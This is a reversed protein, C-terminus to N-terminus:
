IRPRFGWQLGSRLPSCRWDSAISAWRRIARKWRNRWRFCCPRPRTWPIWFPNPRLVSQVRARLVKTRMPRVLFDDAGAAIGIAENEADPTDTILIIPISQTASHSRLICCLAPGGVEPALLDVLALDIVDRSILSLAETTSKAEIVEHGLERLMERLVRRNTPFDDVILIRRKVPLVMMGASEQAAAHWERM